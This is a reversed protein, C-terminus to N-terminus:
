RHSAWGLSHRMRCLFRYHSLAHATFLHQVNFLKGWTDQCGPTHSTPPNYGRDRQERREGEWQCVHVCMLMWVKKHVQAAQKRELWHFVNQCVLMWIRVYLCVYLWEMCTLQKTLVPVSLYASVATTQWFLPEHSISWLSAVAWLPHQSVTQLWNMLEFLFPTNTGVCCTTTNDIAIKNPLVSFSAASNISHKASRFKIQRPKLKLWVRM